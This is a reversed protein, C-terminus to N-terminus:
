KNVVVSQLLCSFGMSVIDVRKVPTISKEISSPLELTYVIMFNLTQVYIAMRLKFNQKILIIPRLVSQQCTCMHMYKNHYCNRHQITNNAIPEFEFM